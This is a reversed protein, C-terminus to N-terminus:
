VGARVEGAHALAGHARGEGGVLEPGQEAARERGFPLVGRPHDVRQGFGRM